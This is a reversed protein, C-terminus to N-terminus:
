VPHFINRKHSDNCYEISQFTFTFNPFGTVSFRLCYRCQALKTTAHRLYASHRTGNSNRNNTWNKTASTATAVELSPM